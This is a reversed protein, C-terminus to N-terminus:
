ASIRVKDLAVRGSGPHEASDFGCEACLFGSLHAVKDRVYSPCPEVYPHTGRTHAIACQRCLTWRKAIARTCGPNSCVGEAM